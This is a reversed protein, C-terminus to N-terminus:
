KKRIFYEIDRNIKDPLERSLYHTGDEYIKIKLDKHFQKSLEAGEVAAFPDNKGIIFLTPSDIKKQEEFAEPLLFPINRYYNLMYTLAKDESWAKYLLNFDYQSFTKSHSGYVMFATLRFYNERFHVLFLDFFITSEFM